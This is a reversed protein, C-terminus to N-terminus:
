VPEQQGLVQQKMETDSSQAPMLDRYGLRGGIKGLM